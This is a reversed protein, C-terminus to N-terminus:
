TEGKGLPTSVEVSPIDSSNDSHTRQLHPLLTEVLDLISKPPIALRVTEGGELTFLLGVCGTSADPSTTGGWDANKYSKGLIIKAYKM